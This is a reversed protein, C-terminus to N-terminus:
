ARVLFEELAKSDPIEPLRFKHEAAIEVIRDWRKPIRVVRRISPFKSASLYRATVGNAGIMFDEIIEKARNKEEIELARIQDGAFVPKAQITVLNLAGQLHRLNKMKQATQDQ